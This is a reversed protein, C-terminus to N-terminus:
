ESIRQAEQTDLPTLVPEQRADRIFLLAGVISLVLGSLFRGLVIGYAQWLLFFLAPLVVGSVAAAGRLLYQSREDQQTRFYTEAFFGPISVVFAALLWSIFPLSSTYEQPLIIPVLVWLAAGAVLGVLASGAWVVGTEMVMRRRRRALPLRVLPPYRVTYYVTWLNKFQTYVIQAISYDAMVGLPLFLAVLLSDVRTQATSIANLGTMHKGYRVMERREESSMPPSKARRLQDLLWIAVGVQLAALAVQNALFFWLVQTALLPLVLLVLIGAYRTLAESIRYWFLRVFDEKASLVGAVATLGTTVPYTLGAIVFLGALTPNGAGLWYIGGVLFGLTSLISWRLRTAVNVRFAGPDGKAVYHYTALDLGSLSLLQLFPLVSIVVGLMGVEDKTLIRTIVPVRILGLVAVIVNASLLLGSDRWFRRSVMRQRVSRWLQMNM